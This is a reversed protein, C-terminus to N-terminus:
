HITTAAPVKQSHYMLQMDMMLSVTRAFFEPRKLADSLLFVCRDSTSIDNLARAVASLVQERQAHLDPNLQELYFVVKRAWDRYLKDGDFPRGSLRSQLATMLFSWPQQNVACEM